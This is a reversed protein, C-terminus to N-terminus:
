VGGSLLPYKGELKGLVTVLDKCFGLGAVPLSLNACTVLLQVFDGTYLLKGGAPTMGAVLLGVLTTGFLYAFRVAIAVIPQVVNVVINPQDHPTTAKAGQVLGDGTGVVTVSVPPMIETVTKVDDTM